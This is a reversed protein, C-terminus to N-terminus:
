PLEGPWVQPFHELHRKMEDRKTPDAEFSKVRAVAREYDEAHGLRAAIGALGLWALPDEPDKRVLERYIREAAADDPKLTEALAWMLLIRRHPALRAAHQAAEAAEPWRRLRMFRAALFDWLLAPDSDGGPAAELAYARVRRLGTEADHNLALWQLSPVMVGLLVPLALWRTDHVSPSAMFAALMSLSMGAPAFVDWDRFLGQQPHVFLMLVGFSAVLVLLFARGAPLRVERRPPVILGALFLPSLAVTLNVLAILHAGSFAAALFGARRVSEPALHRSLDYEFLLALIRPLALLAALAPLALGAWSKWGGRSLPPRTRLWQRLLYAWAPLLVLSSRHLLLAVAMVFGVPLLSGRGRMLRLGAVGLALTLLCLESAPKGLGTFMTLTGGFVVIATAAVAAGGRLELARTFFVALAGLVFAEVAGLARLAANAAESSGAGIPRLLVSHLFWDLPLSAVYNGTAFGAEVNGQRM